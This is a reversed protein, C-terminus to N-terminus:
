GNIQTSQMRRNDIVEHGEHAEHHYNQEKKQNRSRRALERRNFKEPQTEQARHIADTGQM